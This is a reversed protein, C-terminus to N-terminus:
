FFVFIFISVPSFIGSFASISIGTSERGKCSAGLKFNLNASTISLGVVIM